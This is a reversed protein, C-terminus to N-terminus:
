QGALQFFIPMTYAVRVPRGNQIGPKWAPANKLVRAAEEDCGGGIGRLVKIDTLQGNKEVVFSMIVRGTINNERAMPPYKLNKQLYKGWGAMGGNFEPLVEVSAFDKISNDETVEVEKPAEGVPEDIVIDANPDGEITKQGPDAVKLEEITPPEEDRVEEAPVVVPPPFKIQDIKPKPPEPPPPPLEEKNIPPPPALVVETMKLQDDEPLIGSIYRVILPLSVVLIFLISGIIIARSTTKSNDKRLDYAGYSKNRGTFVVDLWEPKFLDIKSGLM